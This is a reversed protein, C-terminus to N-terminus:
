MTDCFVVSDFLFDFFIENVILPNRPPGDAGCTESNCPSPNTKQGKPVVEGGRILLAM